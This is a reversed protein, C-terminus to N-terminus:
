VWGPPLQLMTHAASHPAWAVTVPASQAEKHAALTQGGAFYAASTSANFAHLAAHMPVHLVFVSKQMTM